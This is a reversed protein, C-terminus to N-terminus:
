WAFGKKLAAEANPKAKAVTVMKILPPVQKQIEVLATKKQDTDLDGRQKAVRNNIYYATISAVTIASDLGSTMQLKLGKQWVAIAQAQANKKYDISLFKVYQEHTLINAIRKNAYNLNEKPNEGIKGKQKKKVENLYKSQKELSDVQAKTLKLAVRQVIVKDFPSTIKKYDNGMLFQEIKPAFKGNVQNILSDKEAPNHYLFKIRAIQRAKENILPLIKEQDSASLAKSKALNKLMNDKATKGLSSYFTNQEKPSLLKIFERQLSDRVQNQKEKTANAKILVPLVNQNKLFYEAFLVQKQPSLPVDELLGNLRTSIFAPYKKVLDPSVVTTAVDQAFSKSAAMFLLLIFLLNTKKM